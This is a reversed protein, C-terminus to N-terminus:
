VVDAFSERLRNSNDRLIVELWQNFVAICDLHAVGKTRCCVHRCHAELLADLGSWAGGYRTLASQRSVNPLLLLRMNGLTYDLRTVVHDSTFLACHVGHLRCGSGSQLTHTIAQLLEHCPERMRTLMDDCCCLSRLGCTASRRVFARGKRGAGVKLDERTAWCIM